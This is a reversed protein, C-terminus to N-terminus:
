YPGADSEDAATEILSIDTEAYVVSPEFVGASSRINCMPAEIHKCIKLQM